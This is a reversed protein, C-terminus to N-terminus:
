AIRVGGAADRKRAEAAAENQSEVHDRQELVDIWLDLTTIFETEPEHGRGTEKRELAQRRSKVVEQMFAQCSKWAYSRGTEATFKTAVAQWFKSIQVGEIWDDEHELCCNVLALKQEETLRKGQSGQGSERSSHETQRRRRSPPAPM